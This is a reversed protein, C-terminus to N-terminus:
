VGDDGKTAIALLQEPTLHSLDATRVPGGNKGTLEVQDVPKGALQQHAYTIAKESGSKILLMLAEHIVDAEAELARRVDERSGKPRGKTNARPDGRVFPRGRPKAKATKERNKGSNEDVGMM